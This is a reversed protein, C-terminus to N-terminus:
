SIRCSCLMVNLSAHSCLSVNVPQENPSIRDQLKMGAKELAVSAKAAHHGIFGSAWNGGAFVGIRIDIHCRSQLQQYVQLVTKLIHHSLTASAKAAHHGISSSAWKGGAFVGIGFSAGMTQMTAAPVGAVSNQSIVLFPMVHGLQVNHQLTIYSQTEQASGSISLMTGSMNAAIRGSM